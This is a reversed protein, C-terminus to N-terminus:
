RTRGHLEVCDTIARGLPSAAYKAMTRAADTLRPNLLRNASKPHRAHILLIASEGAPMDIALRVTNPVALCM